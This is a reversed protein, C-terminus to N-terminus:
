ISERNINRTSFKSFSLHIWIIIMPFNQIRKTECSIFTIYTNIYKTKNCSLVFCLFLGDCKAMNKTITINWSNVSLIQAHYFLIWYVRSLNLIHLYVLDFTESHLANKCHIGIMCRVSWLTKQMINLLSYAVALYM